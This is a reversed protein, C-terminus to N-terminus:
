KRQLKRYWAPAGCVEAWDSPSPMLLRQKGDRDWCWVNNWPCGLRHPALADDPDDVMRLWQEQTRRVGRAARRKDEKASSTGTVACYPKRVSRSM